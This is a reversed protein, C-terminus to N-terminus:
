SDGFNIDRSNITFVFATALDKVKYVSYQGPIERVFTTIEGKKWEGNRRYQVIKGVM